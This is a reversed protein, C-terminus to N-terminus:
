LDGIAKRVHEVFLRRFAPFEGLGTIRCEVKFGAGELVSKLSDDGDGAMDNNAHDGAVVMFPYTVVTRDRSDGLLRITDEFSPFGEVTTVVVDKESLLLKLMLQSYTANAYHETGHGMLVVTNPLNDHIMTSDIAEVVEDYDEDSTLLPTGVVLSEFRDAYRMSIDRVFDYEIGNMIHTPQVVVKRFGEDSLRILAEDIYDVHENDRKKLKAIIMKSTFARRVEFDPFAEAIDREITGITRERNDNYSTGFSIVLIARESNM